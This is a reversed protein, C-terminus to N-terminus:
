PAWDLLYTIADSKRAALDAYADAIREGPYRGSILPSPDLVGSGIRGALFAINDKQNFRLFGRSDPGLPSWGVAEIRLQKMYFYQSQLPNFDGPAEDRGPFGLCAITGMQGALQLALEFDSWSNTTGIVVDAGSPGLADGLSGVRDRGFVGDADFQRALASSSKQGSLAYCDAGALKAMAVSTLGLLGLGIVVVRSGARVDSRLIANYGLHFLYATVIRDADDDAALKYFVDVPEALYHSRHSAMTLIRDGVALGAVESGAAIVRGVNCYGQLRPYGVSPRLPPLGRYAALETGTSIASVVTECVVQHQGPPALPEDRLALKGPAELWVTCSRDSRMAFREIQSM